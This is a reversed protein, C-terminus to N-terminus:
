GRRCTVAGRRGPQCQELCRLSFRRHRCFARGGRGNKHLEAGQTRQTRLTRPIVCRQVAIHRSPSRGPAGDPYKLLHAALSTLAPWRMGVGIMADFHKLVAQNIRSEHARVDGRLARGALYSVMESNLCLNFLAKRAQELSGYRRLCQGDPSDPLYLLTVGSVQEQIFTVGSLTVPGENPTDKGGANLYAPLIEIRKGGAHWAQPTDADIAIDLIQLDNFSIQRQLRACEGQLKLTQRWPEILCERRHERVFLPESHSGMFTDHILQEYTKPLNLAPLTKRLYAHTIGTTLTRRESDDLTSKWM